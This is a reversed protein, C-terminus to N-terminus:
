DDERGMGVRACPKIRGQALPLEVHKGLNEGEGFGLLADEDKGRQSKGRQASGDVTTRGWREGDDYVSVSSQM